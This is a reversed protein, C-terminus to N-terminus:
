CILGSHLKVNLNKFCYYCIVRNNQKVILVSNNQIDEKSPEPRSWLDRWRLYHQFAELREGPIPWKKSKGKQGEPHGPSVRTQLEEDAQAKVITEECQHVEVVIGQQSVQGYRRVLACAQVKVAGQETRQARERDEQGVGEPVFLVKCGEPKKTYCQSGQWHQAKTHYRSNQAVPELILDLWVFFSFPFHKFLINVNKFGANEANM